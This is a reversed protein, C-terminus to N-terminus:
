RFLLMEFDTVGKNKRRGNVLTDQANESVYEMDAKGSRAARCMHRSHPTHM